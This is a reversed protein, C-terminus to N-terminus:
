MEFRDTWARLMETAPGRLVEDCHRSLPTPDPNIEILRAGAHKALLPLEAAPLVLASTGIVLMTRASRAAKVAEGVISPDLAEDFWVM